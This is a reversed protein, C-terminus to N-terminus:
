EVAQFTWLLKKDSARWVRLTSNQDGSVILRGAADSKSRHAYADPGGLREQNIRVSADGSSALFADSAGLFDVSTVEKGFGQETTLQKRGEFDWLKIVKDGGASALVLGDARWAVDLVHSTHGEFAAVEKGEVADFIRVFRDTSACAIHRGDPSFEIGVITDSHAENNEFVITGDAVNWLKLEGSRSPSGGGTALFKGTSDFALATVRDTFQKHDKGDGLTREVSWDPAADWHLITKNAGASLISDASLLVRNVAASHGVFHARPTGALAWTNVQQTDGGTIIATGDASFAVSHWAKEAETAAKKAGELTAETEKASSEAAAFDSEAQISEEAARSTLRVGLEANQRARGVAEEATAVAKNAADFGESAKKKEEDNGSIEVAQRAVDAAAREVRKRVLESQAKALEVAAAKSKDGEETFRKAAEDLRKKREETTKKAVNSALEAENANEIMRDDGKIEALMAGDEMNWIKIVPGGVTALRKGDPSIAVAKVPAGHDFARVENGEDVNWIRATNDEAGTVIQAAHSALCNVAGSHGKLEKTPATTEAEPIPWIRVVNDAHATAVLAGEKVLAMANIAAPTTVKIENPEGDRARVRLTSDSSSTVIHTGDATFAAGTVAGDHVKVEQKSEPNALEWIRVNGASDGAIAHTGSSNAALATVAEPMAAINHRLTQSPRSWIKVERFGGSAVKGDPSIALSQVLDRHAAKATEFHAEKTLAPDELRGDLVGRALDYLHIQNGRGAVASRGDPAIALNYIPQKAGKVPYWIEPAEVFAAAEGKAGQDIWLKLLGLEESTLPVANSKNDDPPMVPDDQHAALIMLLSEEAMGPVVAPGESGGKLIAKPNELNLKGKAKSANHCAICNAKLMPFIEKAFDVPDPHEIKAIPIADTAAETEAVAPDASAPNVAALPLLLSALLLSPNLYKAKSM